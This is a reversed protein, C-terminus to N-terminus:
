VIQDGVMKVAIWIVTICLLISFAVNGAALWIHNQKILQFSELSFASFTSLGGCFGTALLLWSSHHSQRMGFAYFLGILFAATLNALLTAWPFNLSSKQWLLSIGYRCISGLGGGLFVYLWNM